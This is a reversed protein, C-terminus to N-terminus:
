CVAHTVQFAHNAPFGGVMRTVIWTQWSAAIWHSTQVCRDCFRFGARGPVPCLRTQIM